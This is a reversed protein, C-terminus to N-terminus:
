NKVRIKQPQAEPNKMVTLTLVGNVLHADVKNIQIEEPLTFSRSFSGYSREWLHWTENDEKKETERKGGITLRNGLLQIDLDEEKIGPLDAKFVYATPTEKVEFSPMFTQTDLTNLNDRFPDWRMLERMMRFPELVPTQSPTTTRADRTLLNSM